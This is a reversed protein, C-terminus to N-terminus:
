KRAAQQGEVEQSGAPGIVGYIDPDAILSEAVTVAIAPDLQTDGEVLEVNWGSAANFDAVALKAWNLQEQGISAAPGTLPGMVGIKVPVDPADSQAVVVASFAVFVFALLVLMMTKRATSMIPEKKALHIPGETVPAIALPVSTFNVLMKLSGLNFSLLIRRMQRTNM